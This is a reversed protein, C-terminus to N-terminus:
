TLTAPRMGSGTGTGAASAGAPAVRGTPPRIVPAKCLCRGPEPCDPRNPRTPFPRWGAAAYALAQGLIDSLPVTEARASM